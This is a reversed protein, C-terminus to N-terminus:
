RPRSSQVGDRIGSRKCDSYTLSLTSAKLPRPFKSKSSTIIRRRPTTSPWFNFSIGVRIPEDKFM